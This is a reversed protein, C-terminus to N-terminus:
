WFKIIFHFIVYGTLGIFALLAILYTIIFIKYKM